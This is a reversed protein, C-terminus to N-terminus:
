YHYHTISFNGASCELRRGCHILPCLFYFNTTLRMGIEASDRVPFYLFWSVVISIAWPSPRHHDINERSGPLPLPAYPHTKISLLATPRMWNNLCPCVCM